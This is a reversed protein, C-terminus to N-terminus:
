WVSSGAQRALECSSLSSFMWTQLSKLFSLSIESCLDLSIKGETMVPLLPLGITM